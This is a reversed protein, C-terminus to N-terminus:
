KPGGTVEPGELVPRKPKFAARKLFLLAFCTDCIPLKLRSGPGLPANPAWHGDKKQLDLLVRAGERYWPHEGLLRKNAIVLARELGYLYYFHWTGEVPPNGKVTYNHQLWAIGDWIGQDVKKRLATSLAYQEELIAKVIMLSSLGATTMAGSAECGHTYGWGRARDKVAAEDAEGDPGKPKAYRDDKEAEESPPPPDLRRLVEPGEKDQWEILREAVEILTEKPIEYGCRTGAWIALLVYQSTSLDEPGGYNPGHKIAKVGPPPAPPAGQGGPLGGPYRWVGKEHRHEVLWDLIEFIVRKVWKPYDCPNRGKKTKNGYRDVKKITEDTPPTAYLKHLGLVAISLSYTTAERLHVGKYLEDYRKKLYAVTKRVVKHKPGYDCHALTYLVLSALGIKRQDAQFMSPAQGKPMRYSGDKYQLSALWKAGRTIAEDIEKQLAPDLKALNPIAEPQKPDEDARAPTAALCFTVLVLLALRISM